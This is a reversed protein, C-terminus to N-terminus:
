REDLDGFEFKDASCAVWLHRLSYLKADRITVEFWNRLLAPLEQELRATIAKVDAQKVSKVKINWNKSLSYHSATFVGPENKSLEFDVSIDHKVLELLDPFTKSFWDLTLPYALGLTPALYDRYNSRFEFVEEEDDETM